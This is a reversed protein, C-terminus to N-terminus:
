GNYDAFIREFIREAEIQSEKTFQQYKTLLEEGEKTLVTGGGSNGGSRGEMLTIGLDEEAHKIIKWAKSYAMGMEKTAASLSGKEKVLEMLATVGPGFDREKRYLRLKMHFKLKDEDMM